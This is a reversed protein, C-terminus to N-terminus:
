IRISFIVCSSEFINSESLFLFILSKKAIFNTSDWDFCIQLLFQFMLLLLM